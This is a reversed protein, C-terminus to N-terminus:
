LAFVCVLNLDVNFHQLMARFGNISQFGHAYLLQLRAMPWAIGRLGTMAFAAFVLTFAFGPTHERNQVSICSM